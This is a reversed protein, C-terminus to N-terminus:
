PRETMITAYLKIALIPNMWSVFSILNVDFEERIVKM